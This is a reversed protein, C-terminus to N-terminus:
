VNTIFGLGFARPLRQSSICKTSVDIESQQSPKSRLASIGICILYAACLCKLVSFLIVSQSILLGIGLVSYLVHVLIASGVGISTYIAHRRGYNVSQKVVVAFDPGPSMVALAHAAAILLFQSIFLSDM